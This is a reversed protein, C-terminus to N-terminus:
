HPRTVHYSPLGAQLLNAHQSSQALQKRTEDLSTSTSPITNPLSSSPKKALERPEQYSDIVARAQDRHQSLPSNGGTLLIVKEFLDSIDREPIYSFPMKRTFGTLLILRTNSFHLKPRIWDSLSKLYQCCIEVLISHKQPSTLLSQLSVM